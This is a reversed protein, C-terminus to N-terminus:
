VFRHKLNMIDRYTVVGTIVDDGTTVPLARFSYRLFQNSAEAITDDPSLSVVDTTMIEKLHTEPRAKLLEPLNVVGHLRNDHDVVYLYDLADAEEAVKRYASIVLAASMDPLFRIFNKTTLNAITAEQKELLSEIKQAEDHEMLKIIEDAEQAPLVSLVDAAQAPTMEDILDAVREKDMSSILSRQVRPEIEELTDSAQETDLEKFIALSQEHDLEELIDALDVPHIEPLKEKLVKLKVNGTFSGISEPLPQVYTWSLTEKKLKEALGYIFKVLPKLGLRRLLGYKSFDVETVYLKNNCCVLRVDYVVEVENDDMDLVKKDLIHDRLLIQTPEPENEYQEISPIDIVIQRSEIGKVKEWPILLSKYGFPRKVLFHTVEPIKETELIVIDDLKGVKKDGLMVKRGIIDSLRFQLEQKGNIEPKNGNININMNM